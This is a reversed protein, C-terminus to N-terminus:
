DAKESAETTKHEKYDCVGQVNFLCGACASVLWVKYIFVYKYYFPTNDVKKKVKILM